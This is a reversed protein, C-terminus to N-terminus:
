DITNKLLKEINRFCNEYEYNNVVYKRGEYGMNEYKNKHFYFDLISDALCEATITELVISTKGPITTEMLGEVPSIILPTACAQAEVASVGFSEQRSPILALDMNAWESAAEEQSIYGLWVIRDDIDLRKALLKLDKEMGGKGAIRLQMKIEPHIKKIVSMAELIVDIAYVFALGKVTGIVFTDGSRKKKDPNFLRMDVGFPTIDIRKKTYKSTERAMAKSTSFIYRARGLSYRLLCKNLLGHNPFDYIDSGWVSLVYKKLGALAAVAGYSTAYHVNIIDPKIEEIKKRVKKYSFLYKIKKIDVSEANTCADIYHTYVGEIERNSFSIVHVEYGNKVFWECWKKIHYSGSDAIFCIKINM